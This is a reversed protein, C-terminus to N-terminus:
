LSRMITRPSVGIRYIQNIALTNSIDTWSTGNNTSYYIGGDNGIYVDNTVPHFECCHQDAHVSNVTGGCASNTWHSKITWATGGNTTRWVNIGGVYVDNANSPNATIFVDYAGQGTTTSPTCNYGLLNNGM